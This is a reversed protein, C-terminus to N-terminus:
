DAGVICPKRGVVTFFVGFEFYQDQESRQHFDAIIEAVEAETLINHRQASIL